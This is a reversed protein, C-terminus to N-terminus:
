KTRLRVSTNQKSGEVVYLDGRTKLYAQWTSRGTAKRPFGEKPMLQGLLTLLLKSNKDGKERCIRQIAQDLESLLADSPSKPAEAAVAAPSLVVTPPEIEPEPLIPCFESCADRFSQAAKPRGMGIVHLGAERLRTALPAFDGDSSVIIFVSAAGSHVLDMAEIVMNMDATNKSRGHGTHVQHFRTDVEWDRLLAMDGYVRRVIMRGQKEATSLIFDATNCSVNEGDILVAVKARLAPDHAHTSREHLM